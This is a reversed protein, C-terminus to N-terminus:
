PRRPRYHNHDLARIEEDELTALDNLRRRYFYALREVDLFDPMIRGSEIKSIYSQSFGLAKAALQQTLAEKGYRRRQRNQEERWDKLKDALKLTREAKDGM